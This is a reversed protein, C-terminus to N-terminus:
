ESNLLEIIIKSSAIIDRNDENEELLSLEELRPLEESAANLFLRKDSEIHIEKQAFNVLGDLFSDLYMQDEEEIYSLVREAIDENAFSYVFDLEMFKMIKALCLAAGMGDKISGENIAALIREILNGREIVNAILEEHSMMNSLIVFCQYQFGHEDSFQMLNEVFNLQLLKSAGDLKASFDRFFDLVDKTFADTSILVFLYSLKEANINMSNVYEVTSLYRNLLHLGDHVVSPLREKYHPNIFSWLLKYYQAIYSASYNTSLLLTHVATVYKEEEDPIFFTPACLHPGLYPILRMDILPQFIEESIEALNCACRLGGIVRKTYTRDRTGYKTILDIILTYLEHKILEELFPSGKYIMSAIIYSTKWKNESFLDFSFLAEIFDSELVKEARPQDYHRFYNMHEFINDLKEQNEGERSVSEIFEVINTEFNVIDNITPTSEDLEEKRRDENRASHLSSKM